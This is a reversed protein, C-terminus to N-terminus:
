NKILIIVNIFSCKNQKMLKLIIDNRYHIEVRMNYYGTTLVIKKNNYKMQLKKKLLNLWNIM